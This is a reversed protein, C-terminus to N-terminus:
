LWEQDLNPTFEDGMAILTLTCFNLQAVWISLVVRTKWCFYVKVITINEIEPFILIKRQQLFVSISFNSIIIHSVLM